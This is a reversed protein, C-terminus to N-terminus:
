GLAGAKRLRDIEAPALNLVECLVADAEALVQVARTSLDGLNGIPTAVIHLSGTAARAM